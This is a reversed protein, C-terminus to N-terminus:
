DFILGIVLLPIWKLLMKEASRYKPKGVFQLVSRPSSSFPVGAKQMERRHRHSWFTCGWLLLRIHLIMARGRMVFMAMMLGWSSFCGDYFWAEHTPANNLSHTLASHILDHQPQNSTSFIFYLVRQLWALHHPSGAWNMVLTFVHHVSSIWIYGNCLNSIYQAPYFASLFLSLTYPTSRLLVM